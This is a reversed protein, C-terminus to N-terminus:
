ARCDLFASPPPLRRCLCTLSGGESCGSSPRRSCHSGERISRVAAQHLGMERTAPYRSKAASGRPFAGDKADRRNPLPPVTGRGRIGIQEVPDADHSRFRSCVASRHRGGHLLAVSRYFRQQLEPHPSCLGEQRPGRQPHNFAPRSSAHWRGRGTFPLARSRLQHSQSQRRDLPLHHSADESATAM